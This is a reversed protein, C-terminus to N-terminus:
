TALVVRTVAGVESRHVKPHEEGKDNEAGHHYGSRNNGDNNDNWVPKERTERSSTVDLCSEVPLSLCATQKSPRLTIRVTNTCRVSSVPNTSMTAVANSMGLSDIQIHKHRRANFLHWVVLLRFAVRVPSVPVPCFLRELLRVAVGLM